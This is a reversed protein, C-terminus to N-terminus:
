NCFKMELIEPESYPFQDPLWHRNAGWVFEFGTVLRYQRGADNGGRWLVYSVM